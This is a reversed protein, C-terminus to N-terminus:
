AANNVHGHSDLAYGRVRWRARFRLPDDPRIPSYGTWGIRETM